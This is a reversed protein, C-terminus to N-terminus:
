KLLAKVQTEDLVQPFTCGLFWGRYTLPRAHVVKLVLTQGARAPRPPLDVVLTTGPEFREGLMLGIGGRSVNKVRAKLTAEGEAAGEPRCLAELNCPFRVSTRKEAMRTMSWQRTQEHARGGQDICLVTKHSKQLVTDRSCLAPERHLIQTETLAKIQFEVVQTKEPDPAATGFVGRCWGLFSDVWSVKVAEVLQTM